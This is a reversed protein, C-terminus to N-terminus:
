FETETDSVEIYVKDSETDFYQNFFGPQKEFGSVFSDISKGQGFAVSSLTVLLLSFYPFLSKM